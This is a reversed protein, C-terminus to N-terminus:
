IENNDWFDDMVWELIYYLPALFILNPAFYSLKHLKLFNVKIKGYAPM